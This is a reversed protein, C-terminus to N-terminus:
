ELGWHLDVIGFTYGAGISCLLIRDWKKITWNTYMEHLCLPISAAGTNGNKAINILMKDEPIELKKKIAQLMSLNAQHPVVYDFDSINLKKKSLYEEIIHPLVNAWTEYVKYANLMWSKPNLAKDHYCMIDNSHDVITKIYTDNITYVSDTKNEIIVAGAWDGMLIETKYDKGPIIHKSFQDVWVVLAKNSRGLLIETTAQHIAGIFSTCAMSVTDALQLSQINLAKAINIAENPYQFDPTSTGVLITDVWVLAIHLDQAVRVSMLATGQLEFLYGRENIWVKEFKKSLDEAYNKQIDFNSVKTDPVFSSIATIVPKRM